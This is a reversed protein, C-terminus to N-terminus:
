ILEQCEKSKKIKTNIVFLYRIFTNNTKNLKQNNAIAQSISTANHGATTLNTLNTIDSSSFTSSKIVYVESPSKGNLYM